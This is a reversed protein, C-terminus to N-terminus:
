SKSFYKKTVKSFSYSYGTLLLHSINDTSLFVFLEHEDLEEYHEQPRLTLLEWVEM